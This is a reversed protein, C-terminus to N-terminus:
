LVDGPDDSGSGRFPRQRLRLFVTFKRHPVPHRQQPQPLVRQLLLQAIKQQSLVPIILRPIIARHTAKHEQGQEQEGYNHIGNELFYARMPVTSDLISKKLGTATVEVQTFKVNHNVLFKLNKQEFENFPRMNVM